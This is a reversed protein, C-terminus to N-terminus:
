RYVLNYYQEHGKLVVGFQVLDHWFEPNEKKMNLFDDKAVLVPTIRLNFKHRLSLAIREVDARGNVCLVDIDSGEKAEDKAYSGFLVVVDAKGKALFERLVKGVTSYRRMLSTRRSITHYTFALLALDNSTDVTYVLTRGVKRRSVIGKNVLSNLSSYVREYSYDVVERLEQITKTGDEPFFAALVKLENEPLV